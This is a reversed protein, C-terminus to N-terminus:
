MFLHKLHQSKRIFFLVVGYLIHLAGYLKKLMLGDILMIGTLTPMFLSADWRELVLGFQTGDWKMTGFWYNAITILWAGWVFFQLFSMVTLRNKIGM